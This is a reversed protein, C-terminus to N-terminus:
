LDKRVSGLLMMNNCKGLKGIKQLIISTTKSTNGRSDNEPRTPLPLEKVPTDGRYKGTHMIYYLKAGALYASTSAASVMLKTGGTINIAFDKKTLTSDIKKEQIIISLITKIIGDMDFAGVRVLEVPINYESEIKTKLANLEFEYKYDSEDKTHLVYLKAPISKILGYEVVIPTKGVLALQIM